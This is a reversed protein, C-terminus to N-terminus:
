AQKQPVPDSPRCRISALFHHSVYKLYAFFDREKAEKVKLYKLGFYMEFFFAGVYNLFFFCSFLTPFFGGVYSIVDM